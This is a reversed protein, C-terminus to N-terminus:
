DVSKLYNGGYFDAVTQHHYPSVEVFKEKFGALEKPNVALGLNDVYDNYCQNRLTKYQEYEADLDVEMLINNKQSIMHKQSM